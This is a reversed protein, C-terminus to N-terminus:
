EYMFKPNRPSVSGTKKRHINKKKFPVMYLLILNLRHLPAAVHEWLTDLGSVVM